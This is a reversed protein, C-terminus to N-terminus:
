PITWVVAHMEIGRGPTDVEAYGTVLNGRIGAAFSMGGVVITGLDVLSGDPQWVVAHNPKDIGLNSSGVIRGGDIDMAWTADGGLTGLAEVATGGPWHYANQSYDYYTSGRRRVLTARQEWGVISGDGDVAVPIVYPSLRPLITLEWGSGDPLRTWRVPQSDGADSITGVVVSGDPSIGWPESSSRPNPLAEACLAGPAWYIAHLGNSVETGIIAGTESIDYAHGQVTTETPGCRTHLATMAGSASLLFPRSTAQDVGLQRFGVISGADNIDYALTRYAPQLLAHLDETMAAGIGTVTWRMAHSENASSGLGAYGVIVGAGNVASAQTGNLTPHGGLDLVTYSVLFMETGIGKKGGATTAIVDYTTLEASPSVTINAVLEGSSVFTTRNTVIDAGPVSDIGFTAQTGDDFGSGLIRVDLTTGPAARGPSTSTVKPGSGGGKAFAPADAEPATTLPEACATLGALIGALVLARRFRTMAAAIM